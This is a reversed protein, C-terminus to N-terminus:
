VEGIRDFKVYVYKKDPTVEIIRGYGTESPKVGSPYHMVTELDVVNGPYPTTKEDLFETLFIMDPTVRYVYTYEEDETATLAIIFKPYDQAKVWLGEPSREVADGAFVNMYEFSEIAIREVEPATMRSNESKVLKFM